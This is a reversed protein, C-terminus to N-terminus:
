KDNYYRVKLPTANYDHVNLCGRYELNFFIDEIEKIYESSGEFTRWYLIKDNEPNYIEITTKM